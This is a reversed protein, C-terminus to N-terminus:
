TYYVFNGTNNCEWIRVLAAIYLQFITPAKWYLQGWYSTFMGAGERDRWHMLRPTLELLVYLCVAFNWVKNLVMQQWKCPFEECVFPLSVICPYSNMQMNEKSTGITICQRWIGCGVNPGSFYLLDPSVAGGNVWNYSGTTCPKQRAGVWFHKETFGLLFIILILLTIFELPKSMNISNNM